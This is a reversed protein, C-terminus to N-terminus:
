QARKVKEQEKLIQKALSAIKAIEARNIQNGPKFRGDGYGAVIEQSNAFNVFKAFWDDSSVDSFNSTASDPIEVGSAALIMKMAEARNVVGGPNFSGDPYGGVATAGKAASVYPAFWADKDVDPFPNATVNTPVELDFLEVVIKAIEARNLSNSPRYTEDPYGAVVEQDVLDEVFPAYWANADIDKLRGPLLTAEAEAILQLYEPYEAVYVKLEEESTGSDILQKVRWFLKVSDTKNSEEEGEWSGIRVAKILFSDVKNVFGNNVISKAFSIEGIGDKTKGLGLDILDNRNPHAMHSMWINFVDTQGKKLMDSTMYQRVWPTFNYLNNIEDNFFTPRFGYSYLNKAMTVIVEGGDSLMIKDFGSNEQISKEFAPLLKEYYSNASDVFGDILLYQNFDNRDTEPFVAITHRTYIPNSYTKNMKDREVVIRKYRKDDISIQEVQDSSGYKIFRFPSSQTVIIENTIDSFSLSENKLERITARCSTLENDELDYEFEVNFQKVFNNSPQDETTGNAIRLTASSSLKKIGLSDGFGYDKIKFLPKKFFIRFVYNYALDYDFSSISSLSSFNPVISLFKDSEPLDSLREAIVRYCEEEATQDSASTIPLKNTFIALALVLFALSFNIIKKM